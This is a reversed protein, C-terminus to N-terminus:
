LMWSFEGVEHTIVLSIALSPLKLGLKNTGSTIGSNFFFDQNRWQCLQNVYALGLVGKPDAFETFLHNLCYKKRSLAMYTGFSNLKSDASWKHYDENFHRVDSIYDPKSYDELLLLEAIQIGFGVVSNGLIDEFQSLKFVKDAFRVHQIMLSLCAFHNSRCRKRFLDTDGVVYIQCIERGHNRKQRRVRKGGNSLLTLLQSQLRDPQPAQHSLSPNRKSHKGLVNCFKYGDSLGKLDSMRYAVMTDNHPNNFPELIRWAPEVVYIESEEIIQISWIDEELHAHVTSNVNYTDHGTFINSQDVPLVSSSGNKHVLRAKFDKPLVQAGPRLTLHFNRQFANFQVRKVVDVQSQSSRTVRSSLHIHSLTEYYSLHNMELGCVSHWCLFLVTWKLLM